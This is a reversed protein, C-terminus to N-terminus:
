ISGNDGSTKTEEERKSIAIHNESCLRYAHQRLIYWSVYHIDDIHLKPKSFLSKVFRISSFYTSFVTEDRKEKVPAIHASKRFALALAEIDIGALCINGILSAAFSRYNNITDTQSSLEDIVKRYSMISTVDYQTTERYLIEAVVLVAERESPGLLSLTYDVIYHLKALEEGIKLTREGV